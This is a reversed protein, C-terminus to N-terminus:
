KLLVYYSWRKDGKKQVLGENVMSGLERQITKESCDLVIQSIDKVNVYDKRKLVNMIKNRRDSMKIKKEDYNLSNTHGQYNEDKPHRQTKDTKKTDKQTDKQKELTKDKIHSKTKKDITSQGKSYDSTEGTELSINFFDESLVGGGKKREEERKSLLKKLESYEKLLVSFNMESIFGSIYAVELLSIIEFIFNYTDSISYNAKKYSASTLYMILSLLDVGRKRIESKLHEGEPIFDTVLFLASTLRQNKKYIFAGLYDEGFFDTDSLFCPISTSLYRENNRQNKNKGTESM